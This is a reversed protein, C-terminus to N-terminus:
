RGILLNPRLQRFPLFPPGGSPPSVDEIAVTAAFWGANGSAPTLTSSVTGTAGASTQIKDAILIPMWGSAPSATDYDSVRSTYGTPVTWSGTTSTDPDGGAFHVIMCGNQTTTITPGTVTIPTANASANTSSNSANVPSAANNHWATVVSITRSNSDHTWTYTTGESSAVKYYLAFTQSDPTDIGVPSILTTWGAPPTITWGGSGDKMHFTFMVDGDVVGTPKNLVISGTTVQKVISSAAVFTVAM